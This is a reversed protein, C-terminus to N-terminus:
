FHDLACTFYIGPKKQKRWCLEESSMRAELNYYATAEPVPLYLSRAVTDMISKQYILFLNNLRRSSARLAALGAHHSPQEAFWFFLTFIADDPLEVLSHARSLSWTVDNSTHAGAPESPMTYAHSSRGQSTINDASSVVWVVAFILDQCGCGVVYLYISGGGRLANHYPITLSFANHHHSLLRRGILAPLRGFDAVTKTNLGLRQFDPTNPNM